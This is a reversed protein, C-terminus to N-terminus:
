IMMLTMFIISTVIMMIMVLMQMMIMKVTRMVERGNINVMPFINEESVTTMMEVAFDDRNYRIIVICHLSSSPLSSSPPINVLYSFHGCLYKYKVKVKEKCDLFM